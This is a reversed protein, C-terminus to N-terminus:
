DRLKVNNTNNKISWPLTSTALLQMNTYCIIVNNMVYYSTDGALIYYSISIYLLCEYALDAYNVIVLNGYIYIYVCTYICIYIYISLSLSVAAHLNGLLMIHKNNNNDDNNTTNHNNGTNTGTTTTTTSTM